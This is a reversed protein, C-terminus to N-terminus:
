LKLEAAYGTLEMYARGIDKGDAGRVRCAGEWYSIGGLAGTLEQDAALPEITFSVPLNTDPDTTSLRVKAPYIAGTAASKWGSLVDWQFDRKALQGDRGIWTLTSAPDATGNRLRLRYFMVERGDDLQLSLWDWGVQNRSLQSSSIEHDMWSSGTVDHKKGELTLTGKTRLRSFTIYHSAATPDSGKRSVGAEGFIVRPKEPSLSLEWSADGKVGGRLLMEETTVNESRLSWPGNRVMLGDVAAEADWGERNLREQHYFRGAKVDLLAMHALYVQPKGLGTASRFFTAQYGFRAGESDTLHGTVYWWELKFDPHSGHDRPFSFTYGAQPVAYGEQTRAPSAPSAAAVSQVGHLRVAGVLVGAFLCLWFRRKRPTNM